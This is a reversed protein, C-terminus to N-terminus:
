KGRFDEVHVLDGGVRGALYVEGISPVVEESLPFPYSTVKRGEERYLIPPYGQFHIRPAYVASFPDEPDGVLHLVVQLVTSPIRSGGPSGLAFCDEGKVMLLPTM